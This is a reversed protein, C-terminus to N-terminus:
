GSAAGVDEWQLVPADRWLRELDYYEREEPAFVHVVVDVFDLLVWRNDQEGERRLPKMGQGRLSREIEEVITRVQRESGGSAIVFYDTIVILNRVDLVVVREGQKDAAARAAAVALDRSSTEKARREPVVRRVQM